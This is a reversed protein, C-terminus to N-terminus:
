GTREFLRALKSIADATKVLADDFKSTDRVAGEVSATAGKMAQVAAQYPASAHSMGALNLDMKQQYLQDLLEDVADAQSPLKESLSELAKIIRTLHQSIADM